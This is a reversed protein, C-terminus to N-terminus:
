EVRAADDETTEPVSEDKLEMKRGNKWQLLSPLDTDVMKMYTMLGANGRALGLMVRAQDILKKNGTQGALVFNEEFCKAAEKLRGVRNLLMGLQQLVEGKVTYKGRILEGNETTDAPLADEFGRLYQKPKL